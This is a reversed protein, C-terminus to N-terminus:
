VMFKIWPYLTSSCYLTRSPMYYCIEWLSASKNTSYLNQLFFEMTMYTQSVYKSDRAQPAMLLIPVTFYRLHGSTFSGM